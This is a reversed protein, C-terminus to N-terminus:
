EEMKQILKALFSIAEPHPFMQISVNGNKCKIEFSLDKKITKIWNSIKEAKSKDRVVDKLLFVVEYEYESNCAIEMDFKLQYKKEEIAINKTERIAKMQLHSIYSQSVKLNQAIEDQQEDAIYYLIALREKGSLCNLIINILKTYEVKNMMEEEFNYPDKLSDEIRINSEAKQKKLPEEISINRRDYRNVKRFYMAMENKICRLAYTSFATSKSEDFTNAAKTLALNGLSVLDDYHASKFAIGFKRLQYYVLGQNEMILEEKEKKLKM